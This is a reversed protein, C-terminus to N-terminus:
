SIENVKKQEEIRKKAREEAEIRRQRAKNFHEKIFTEHAEKTLLGKGDKTKGGLKNAIEDIFDTNIDQLLFGAISKESDIESLRDNKKEM